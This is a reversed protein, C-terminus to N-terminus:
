VLDDFSIGLIEELPANYDPLLALDDNHPDISPRKDSMPAIKPKGDSRGILGSLKKWLRPRPKKLLKEADTPSIIKRDYMEDTKLRMAKMQVEAEDQDVWKRHGQQGQVLKWDKHKEGAMMDSYMREEIADQFMELLKRNKYLEVVTKFDLTPIKVIAEQIGDALTPSVTGVDNEHTLDDLDFLGKDTAAPVLVGSLCEKALAPCTAKAKCWQCGKESPVLYDKEWSIGDQYLYKPDSYKRAEECKLVAKKAKEAFEYLEDVTCSWEPCSPEKQLRPQFIVLRVKEVKSLDLGLM